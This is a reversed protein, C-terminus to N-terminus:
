SAVAADEATAPEADATALAREMERMQELKIQRQQSAEAKARMAAAWADACAQSCLRKFGGGAEAPCECEVAFQSYFQKFCQYCCLKEASPSANGQTETSTSEAPPQLPTSARELNVESEGLSSWFSGVAKAPPRPEAKGEPLAAAGGRWAKLAEQFSAASEEEDFQGELLSTTGEEVKKQFSPEAAVKEAGFTVKKASNLSSAPSPGESIIKPGM